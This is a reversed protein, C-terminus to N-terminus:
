SCSPKQCRVEDNQFMTLHRSRCRLQCGGKRVVVDVPPRKQARSLNLTCREGVRPDEVTNPEFEHCVLWSDTVKVM